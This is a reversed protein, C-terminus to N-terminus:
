LVWLRIAFIHVMELVNSSLKESRKTLRRMDKMPIVALADQGAIRQRIANANYAKDAVVAGDLLDIMVQHGHVQGGTIILHRPRGSEDVVAHVKRTCGKRSRGIDQALEGKQARQRATLRSSLATSLFLSDENQRALADIISTWICRRAWRAYRNYITTYPGDREPLDRWPAGTRLISFIGNLVRHDDVRKPGRGGQPLHPEIAAKITTQDIM